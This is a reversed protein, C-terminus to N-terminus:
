RRERRREHRVDAIRLSGLDDLLLHLFADENAIEDLAILQKGGVLDVVHKIQALHRLDANRASLM